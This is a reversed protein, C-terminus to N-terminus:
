SKMEYFITLKRLFLGTFKTKNLIKQLMYQGLGLSKAYCHSLEDLRLVQFYLKQFFLINSISQDQLQSFKSVQFNKHYM